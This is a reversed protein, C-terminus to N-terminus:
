FLKMVFQLCRHHLILEHLHFDSHIPIYPYISSHQCSSLLWIPGPNMSQTLGSRIVNIRSQNLTRLKGAPFDIDLDFGCCTSFKNKGQSTGRSNKKRSIRRGWGWIMLPRGRLMKIWKVTFGRASSRENNLHWTTYLSLNLYRAFELIFTLKIQVKDLNRRMSLLCKLLDRLNCGVILHIKFSKLWLNVMFALKVIQKYVPFPRKYNEHLM